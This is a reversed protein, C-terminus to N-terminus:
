AYTFLKHTQHHGHVQLEPGATAIAKITEPGIAAIADRFKHTEIAALEKSKAIELENQRAIYDLEATRAKTLRELESEQRLSECSTLSHPIIANDDFIM